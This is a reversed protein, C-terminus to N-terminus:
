KGKPSCPDKFTFKVYSAVLETTLKEAHEQAIEKCKPLEGRIMWEVQTLRSSDEKQHGRVLLGTDVELKHETGRPCQVAVLGTVHVLAGRPDLSLTTVIDKLLPSNFTFV